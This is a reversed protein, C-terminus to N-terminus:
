WTLSFSLETFSHGMGECQDSACMINVLYRCLSHNEPICLTRLLPLAERTLNVIYLCVKFKYQMIPKGAAGHVL